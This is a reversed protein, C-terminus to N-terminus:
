IGPALERLFSALKQARKRWTHRAATEYGNSKLTLALERDFAVTKIGEALADPDDPKVLYANERHRLIERLAPVDSAVVPIGAALYQLLKLPCTFFFPEASHQAPLTIAAAAFQTSCLFPMVDKPLFYGKLSLSSEPLSHTKLLDSAGVDEAGAGGAGVIVLQFGELLGMARFLTDTGKWGGLSGVYVIRRWGRGNEVRAAGPENEAAPQAPEPGGNRAVIVDRERGFLTRALAAVADSTCVLGRASRFLESEARFTRLVKRRVQRAFIGALRAEDSVVMFAIKHAEYVLPTGTRKSLPLLMRATRLNRCFLITSSARKAHIAGRVAHVIGRRPSTNINMNKPLELGYFSALEDPSQNACNEVVLDVDIGLSALGACTNVVQITRAKKEPITADHVYILTM